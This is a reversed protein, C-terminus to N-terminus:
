MNHIYDKQISIKNTEEWFRITPENKTQKDINKVKSAQIYVQVKM